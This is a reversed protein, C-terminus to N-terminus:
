DEKETMNPNRAIQMARHEEMSKSREEYIHYVYIVISM